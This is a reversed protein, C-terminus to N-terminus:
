MKNTGSLCNISKLLKTASKNSSLLKFIKQAAPLFKKPKTRANWNWGLLDSLPDPQNTPDTWFVKRKSCLFRPPCFKGKFLTAFPHRSAKLRKKTWLLEAHNTKTSGIPRYNIYLSFVHALYGPILPNWNIKKRKRKRKHTQWKEQFHFCSPHHNLLYQCHM